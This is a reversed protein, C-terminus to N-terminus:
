EGGMKRHSVANSPGRPITRKPLFHVCGEQKTPVGSSGARALTCRGEQQYICDDTCPILSMFKVKKENKHNYYERPNFFYLGTRACLFAGLLM